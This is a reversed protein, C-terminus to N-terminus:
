VKKYLNLVCRECLVWLFLRNISCVWRLARMTGMFVFPQDLMGMARFSISFLPDLSKGIRSSPEGEVLEEMFKRLRTRNRQDDVGYKKVMRQINARNKFNLKIPGQKINGVEDTQSILDEEHRRFAKANFAGHGNQKWTAKLINLM